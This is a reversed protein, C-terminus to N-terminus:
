LEERRAGVERAGAHRLPRDDVRVFIIAVAEDDDELRSAHVGVHHGVQDPRQQRLPPDDILDHLLGLLPPKRGRRISFSPGVPRMVVVVAGFSWGSFSVRSSESPTISVGSWVLATICASASSPALFFMM